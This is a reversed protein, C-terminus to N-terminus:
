LTQQSQDTRQDGSRTTSQTQAHRVSNVIADALRPDSMRDDSVPVDLRYARVINILHDRSLAALQRRLIAEGQAFTAFPDLVAHTVVPPRPRGHAPGEFLSPESRTVPVATTRPTLARSLAGELYTDTLGEAWYLLDARNPQETERPSRIATGDETLFEIWGEWLGDDAPGGCAQPLYSVGDDGAIRTTYRVLVESM